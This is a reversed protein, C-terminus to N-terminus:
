DDLKARLRRALHPSIEEMQDIMQEVEARPREEEEPLIITEEECSSVYEARVMNGFASRLINCFLLTQQPALMTRLQSPEIGAEMYYFAPHVHIKVQVPQTEDWQAEPDPFLEQVRRQRDQLDQYQQQTIQM